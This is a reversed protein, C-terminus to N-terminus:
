QNTASERCKSLQEIYQDIYKPGSAKCAIFNNNNNYIKKSYIETITKIVEAISM